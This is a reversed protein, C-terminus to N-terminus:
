SGGGRRSRTGRRRRGEAGGTSLLRTAEDVSVKGDRLSRIVALPSLEDKEVIGLALLLEELRSRVTPYSLELSRGMERLNGRTALFLRLLATQEDDLMCYPCPSFLGDLTVSCRSCRARTIVMTGRCSPCVAPFPDDGAPEDAAERDGLADLLREAEGTALAGRRVMDLIEARTPTAM